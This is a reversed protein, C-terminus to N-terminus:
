KFKTKEFEILLDDSNVEISDLYEEINDTEPNVYEPIVYKVGRHNLLDCIENHLKATIINQEIITKVIQFERVKQWNLLEFQGKRSRNKILDRTITSLEVLMKNINLFTEYKGILSINLLHNDSTKIIEPIVEDKCSILLPGGPYKKHNIILDIANLEMFFNTNIEWLTTVLLRDIKDNEGKKDSRRNLFYIVFASIIASVQILEVIGFDEPWEFSYIIPKASIFIIVMLLFATTAVSGSKL